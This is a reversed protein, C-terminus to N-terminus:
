ELAICGSIPLFGLMVVQSGPEGGLMAIGRIIVNEGVYASLTARSAPSTPYVYLSDSGSTLIFLSEAPNGPNLYALTGSLEYYRFDAAVYAHELAIFDAITIATPTMPMSQGTAVTHDVTRHPDNFLVVITEMTMKYGVAVVEDGPAISGNDTNIYIIGTADAVLLMFNEGSAQSNLVVCQIVLPNENSDPLLKLEAITIILDPDVHLQIDFAKDVVENLTLTANVHIDIYIEASVDDSIRNTVTSYEGAYTGYPDYTLTVPVVPHDAPLDVFQGPFYTPSEFVGRFMGELLTLLEQDEGEGYYDLDIFDEDGNFIFMLFVENPNDMNPLIVGRINVRFGAYDRIYSYDSEGIVIVPMTDEGDSLSIQHTNDDTGITGNIEAYVVWNAPSDPDLANFTAVSMATPTFAIENNHSYLDVSVENGPAPELTVLTEEAAYFGGVRVEDGVLAEQYGFVILTDTADALIIIEMESKALLVVGRVFHHETNEPATLAKFESLTLVPYAPDIIWKAHLVVDDVPMITFSFENILAPETYWGDLLYGIKTPDSPAEVVSGHAQTIPAVSSGGNTVFEITSHVDQCSYNIVLSALVLSGTGTNTLVFFYPDTSFYYPTATTLVQPDGITTKTPGYELTAQGGTFTATISKISTIRTTDSNFLTGDEGLVAHSGTQLKATTYKFQVYRGYGEGSGYEEMALNLPSNAENLTITYSSDGYTLRQLLQSNHGIVFVAVGLLLCTTSFLLFKRNKKVQLNDHM